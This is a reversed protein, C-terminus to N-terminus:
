EEIINFWTWPTIVTHITTCNAHDITAMARMPVNEPVKGVMLASDAYVYKFVRSHTTNGGFAPTAKTQLIVIDTDVYGRIPHSPVVREVITIM